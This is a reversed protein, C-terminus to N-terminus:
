DLRGRREAFRGGDLGFSRGRFRRRREAFRGSDLGFNREREAYRGLQQETRTSQRRGELLQLFGRLRPACRLAFGLELATGNKRGAKQTGEGESIDLTVSVELPLAQSM